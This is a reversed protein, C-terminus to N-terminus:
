KNNKEPTNLGGSKLHRAVMCTAVRTFFRAFFFAAQILIRAFVQFNFIPKQVFPEMSLKVFVTQCFISVFTQVREDNAKDTNKKILAGYNLLNGALKM